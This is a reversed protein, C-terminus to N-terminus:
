HLEVDRVCRVDCDNTANAGSVLLKDAIKVRSIKGNNTTSEAGYYSQGTWYWTTASTRLAKEASPCKSLEAEFAAANVSYPETTYYSTTTDYEGDIGYYTKILAEMESITPLRWGEGMDRCYYVAPYEIASSGTVGLVYSQNAMGDDTNIDAAWDYSKATGNGWKLYSSAGSIIKAKTPDTGDVWFVVGIKEGGEAYASGLGPTQPGEPTVPPEPFELTGVTGMDAVDGAEMVVNAPSTKDCTQGDENEFTFCLGDAYTNPNVALYYTGPAFDANDDTELSVSRSDQSHGSLVTVTLDNVWDIKIRTIVKESANVPTVTIKNFQTSNNDVTFKVYSVLHSFQFEANESTAAMLSATFDGGNKAVQSPQLVFQANYDRSQTVVSAGKYHVALYKGSTNDVTKTNTEDIVFTATANPSDLTTEYDCWNADYKSTGENWTRTFLHIKDGNEWLVNVGDQTTTKTSLTTATIEHLTSPTQQPGEVAPTEKQCSAFVLAAAACAYFIYNKKM